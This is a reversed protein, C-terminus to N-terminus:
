ETDRAGERIYKEFAKATSLVLGPHQPDTGQYLRTAYDLADRRIVMDAPSQEKLRDMLEAETEFKVM